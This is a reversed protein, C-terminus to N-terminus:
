RHILSHGCHRNANTAVYLGLGVFMMYHWFLARGEVFIFYRQYIYISVRWYVALVCPVSCMCSHVVFHSHSVM